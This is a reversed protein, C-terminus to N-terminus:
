ASQMLAPADPRMAAGNFAGALFRERTVELREVFQPGGRAPAPVLGSGCYAFGNAQLVARSPLNAPMVSARVTELDTIRFVLDLLARVAETAFGQGWHRKGVWYGLVASDEGAPTLTIAGIPEGPRNKATMVLTLETGALNAARVQLVFDAAAGPPYPHPIAATMRAVDEDGALEGILAADSARPWRLWLRPTELRFVDDRLLDPFM